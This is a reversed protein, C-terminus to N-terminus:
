KKNHKMEKDVSKHSTDFIGSAIRQFSEKINRDVAKLGDEMGELVEDSATKVSLGTNECHELMHHFREKIFVKIRTDEAQVEEAIEKTAKEMDERLSM